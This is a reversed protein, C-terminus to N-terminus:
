IAKLRYSLSKNEERKVARRHLYALAMLRNRYYWSPIKQIIHELFYDSDPDADKLYVHHKRGIKRMDAMVEASAPNKKGTSSYM